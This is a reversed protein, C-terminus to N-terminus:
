FYEMNGSSQNPKEFMAMDNKVKNKFLEFKASNLDSQGKDYTQSDPKLFAERGIGFMLGYHYRAKIDTIVTADEIDHEEMEILPLRKVVMEVTDCVKRITPSASAEDVLTEHVTIVAATVSHITYYGDNHDTGSIYIEDNAAYHATLDEGSLASTITKGTSAFTINASGIVEGTTPFKPFFSIKGSAPMPCCDTPTGTRTRWDDDEKSLRSESTKNLTANSTNVTLVADVVDVVREDLDYVGVGSLLKIQTIAVTEDDRIVLTEEALENIVKNYYRVLEADSWGYASPPGAADDLIELRTHLILESFNM